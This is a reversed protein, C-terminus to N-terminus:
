SIKVAEKIEYENIKNFLTKYSVGLLRAAQAKNGKAARLAVVVARREAEHVVERLPRVPTDSEISPNAVAAAKVIPAPARSARSRELWAVDFVGLVVAREVFNELERVNGPWDHQEMATVVDPTLPLAALGQSRACRAMFHDVLGLLDQKRARLPPLDIPLVNLRYLLDERFSGSQVRAVLNRHTAAVVRVDVAVTVRGGVRTIEREQLVRLLKAQAEIPMDGVEDLFLTGGDAAEVHGKRQAHAGTFAGREFGFLESEILTAPIAACNLSVFPGDRRPSCAHIAKAILEKGTGSEGQVLVTADSAAVRPLLAVVDGLGGEAGILSRALESSPGVTGAHLEVEELQRATELAGAIAQLLRENDFPKVLFDAAGVRLAQVARDVTGFATMVVAPARFGGARLRDLMLLGDGDPLKVDTLLLDPTRKALQSEAEGITSFVSVTTDDNALLDRVLEALSPEDEVVVIETVIRFM